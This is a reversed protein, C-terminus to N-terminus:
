YESLTNDLKATPVIKKKAPESGAETITQAVKSKNYEALVKLLTDALVPDNNNDELFMFVEGRTVSPTEDYGLCYNEHAYFILMAMFEITGFTEKGIGKAKAIKVLMEGLHLGIRLKLLKGAITIQIM